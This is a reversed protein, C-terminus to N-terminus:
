KKSPLPESHILPMCNIEIRPRPSPFLHISNLASDCVSNFKYILTGSHIRAILFSMKWYMDGEFHLLTLKVEICM